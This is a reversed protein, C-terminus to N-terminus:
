IILYDFVSYDILIFQVFFSLVFVSSCYFQCCTFCVSIWQVNLCLTSGHGTWYKCPNFIKTIISSIIAVRSAQIYNHPILHWSTPKKTKGAPESTAKQFAMSGGWCSQQRMDVTVHWCMVLWTGYNCHYHWSLLQSISPEVIRELSMRCWALLPIM